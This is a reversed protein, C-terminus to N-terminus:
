CRSGARRVGQTKHNHTLRRHTSAAASPGMQAGALWAILIFLYAVAAPSKEQSGGDTILWATLGIWLAVGLLGAFLFRKLLLGAAFGPVLGIALRVLFVM